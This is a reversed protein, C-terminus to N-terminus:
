NLGIAKKSIYSYSFEKAAKAAMDKKYALKSLTTNIACVIDTVSDSQLMEANGNVQVHSMGPWSKFVSPLAMGVSQEWLTSHTGPFCAIDSAIMYEIVEQSSCWGVYHINVAKSIIDNIWQMEPTIAGCIVLHADVKQSLIAEILNETKKRTDVKGGTFILIDRDNVNLKQRVNTRIESVNTPINLDDVGMPLYEVKDPSINYVSKLFDCRLPTVGWIKQCYPEIKNACHRWLIRHLIYKSLINRASNFQDTHSDAYVVVNPHADLYNCVVRVDWFSLGHIFIVDPHEEELHLKLGNYRRIIKNIKLPSKYELRKVKFGSDSIYEAPADVLVAHGTKKDYSVRSALVTVDHGQISHYKPLLNEQYSFDDIYFCSLCLHVIKM